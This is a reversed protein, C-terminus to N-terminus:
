TQERSCIQLIMCITLMVMLMTFMALQVLPGHKKMLALLTIQQEMQM